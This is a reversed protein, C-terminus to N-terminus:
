EEARHWYQNETDTNQLASPQSNSSHMSLSKFVTCRPQNVPSLHTQAGIKSTLTLCILWKTETILISRQFTWPSFTIEFQGGGLRILHVLNQTTPKGFPGRKLSVSFSFRSHLKIRYSWANGYCCREPPLVETQGVPLGVMVPIVAERNKSAHLLSANKHRVLSMMRVFLHWNTRLQKNRDVVPM